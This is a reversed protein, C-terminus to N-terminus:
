MVAAFASIENNALPRPYLAVEDVVGNFPYDGRTVYFGGGITLKGTSIAAINSFMYSGATFSVVLAGNVFLDASTNGANIRLHILYASGYPWSMSTQHVTGAGPSNVYIKFHTSSHDVVVLEPCQANGIGTPDQCLTLVVGGGNATHPGYPKILAQMTAGSSLTPGSTNPYTYGAWRGSTEAVDMATDSDSTILGAATSTSPYVNYAGDKGNGSSDTMVYSSASTEGLRYYFFPSNYLVGDYFSSYHLASLRAARAVLATLVASM